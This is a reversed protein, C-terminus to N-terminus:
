STLDKVRHISRERRGREPVPLSIATSCCWIPSCGPRWWGPSAGRARALGSRRGHGAAGRRGRTGAGSPAREDIIRLVGAVIGRLPDLEEVPADLWNAPSAGADLLSRYACARQRGEGLRDGLERDSSAHMFRVSAAVCLRSFRAVEESRAARRARGRPSPAATCGHRTAGFAAVAARNATDGIAYGGMDRRSAMSAPTEAGEGM